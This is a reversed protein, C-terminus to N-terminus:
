NKESLCFCVFWGYKKCQQETDTLHPFSSDGGCFGFCVLQKGPSFFAFLYVFVFGIFCGYLFVVGIADTFLILFNQIEKM